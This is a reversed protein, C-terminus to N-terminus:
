SQLEEQEAQEIQAPEQAEEAPTEPEPKPPALVEDILIHILQIAEELTAAGLEGTVQFYGGQHGEVVYGAVSGEEDYVPSRPSWRDVHPVYIDNGLPQGTMADVKPLSAWARGPPSYIANQQVLTDPHEGAPNLIAPDFEGFSLTRHNDARIHAVAAAHEENCCYPTTHVQIYSVGKAKNYHSIGLNYWTAANPAVQEECGAHNCPVQVTEPDPTKYLETM